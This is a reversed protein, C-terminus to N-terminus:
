FVFCPLMTYDIELSDMVTEFDALCEGDAGGALFVDANQLRLVAVEDRLAHPIWTWEHGNSEILHQMEENQGEYPDGGWMAEAACEDEPSDAFMHPEYGWGWEWVENTGWTLEEVPSFPLELGSVLAVVRDFEGGEILEALELPMDYGMHGRFMEEM